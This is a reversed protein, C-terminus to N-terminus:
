LVLTSPPALVGFRVSLLYSLVRALSALDGVHPYFHPLRYLQKDSIDVEEVGPPTWAVIVGPFTDILRHLLRVRGPPSEEGYNRVILLDAGKAALLARASLLAAKQVANTVGHDVSEEDGEAGFPCFRLSLAHFDPLSPSFLAGLAEELELFWKPEDDTGLELFLLTRSEM